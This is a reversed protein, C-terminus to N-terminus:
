RARVTEWLCMAAATALNLSEAEGRIPISVQYDAAQLVEPALGHAENGFVWALPGAPLDAAGLPFTGAMATALTTFGHERLAQWVQDSDAVRAVPVHFLSGASSRAAKPSLPDVTAGSLVVGRIGLADCMRIITGLNGPDQIDTLVVVAGGARAGALVTDLGYHLGGADCLAFLGTTTSTDALAAAASRDIPSVDIGADLAALLVEEYREAAAGTAFVERVVDAGIAAEVSNFGEVVFRGAKRRQSGRHLKAAAVIRGTSKTFPEANDFIDRLSSAPSRHQSETPM